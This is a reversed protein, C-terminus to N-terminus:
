FIFLPSLLDQAISRKIGHLEMSRSELVSITLFDWHFLSGLGPFTVNVVFPVSQCIQFFNMALLCRLTHAFVTHIRWDNIPMLLHESSTMATFHRDHFSFLYPLFSM